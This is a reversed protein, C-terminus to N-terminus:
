EKQSGQSRNPEVHCLGREVAVEHALDSLHPIKANVVFMLAKDNRNALLQKQYDHNFKYLAHSKEIKKWMKRLTEIHLDGWEPHQDEMFAELTSSM